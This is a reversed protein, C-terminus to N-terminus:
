SPLYKALDDVSRSLEACPDGKKGIEYRTLVRFLASGHPIEVALGCNLRDRDGVDLFEIARHTGVTRPKFEEYDTRRQVDDLSPTGSLIGLTYWRASSRWSCIKWGDFHTDAIDKTKTSPNLGVASIASDPLDCPNWLAADPNASSTAASAASSPAATTPAGKTSTGCGTLGALVLVVACLTGARGTM